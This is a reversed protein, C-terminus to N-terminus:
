CCAGLPEFVVTQDTPLAGVASQQEALYSVLNNAAFDDLGAERLRAKAAASQLAGVERVFRGYARGLELPRGPADGKWFPLRGPTGPAPSVLVQDHTIQEVRWSTTGLTFVDGVRTEYVMEEDLEGVRRGAAHRGSANGEGVLFVGFLGRDPITGGSTVALRQAGPRSALVGSLMDLVAEFASYPLHRFSSARRVLAYLDEVKADEISVIAVVQQALVDLPNRLEAVEEIAGQRMREVVVASAILDGRHNPFFV